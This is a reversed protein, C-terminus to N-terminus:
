VDCVGKDALKVCLSKARGRLLAFSPRLLLPCETCASYRGM